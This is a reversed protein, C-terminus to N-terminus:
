FPIGDTTDEIKIGADSWEKAETLINQVWEPTGDPVPTRDTFSFYRLNGEAVVKNQAPTISAINAWTKSGDSNPNHLIQITAPVGLLSQIDFGELDRVSFGKGRWMELFPRLSSKTHLSQTFRRSVLRPLDEGNIEIRVAPIEWALLLKKASKKWVESYQTGLDMVWVCVADYIGEPIIKVDGNGTSRVILGM